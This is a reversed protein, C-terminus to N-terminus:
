LDGKMVRLCTYIMKRCGMNMLRRVYSQPIDPGIFAYADTYGLGILDAKVTQILQKLAELRWAPTEFSHDMVVYLEATKRAMLCIRPADDDDVIARGVIMKDPLDYKAPQEQHLAKIDADDKPGIHRIVM